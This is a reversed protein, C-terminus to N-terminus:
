QALLLELRSGVQQARDGLDGVWDIVKYLFMADVPPLTKELKIMGAETSPYTRSVVYPGCDTSPIPPPPVALPLPVCDKNWYMSYAVEPPVERGKKKWHSRCSYCGSLVIVMGALVVIWIAKSMRSMIMGGKMETNVRFLFLFFNMAGVFLRNWPGRRFVCKSGLQLQQLRVATQM